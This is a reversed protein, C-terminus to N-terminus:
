SVYYLCLKKIVSSNEELVKNTSNFTSVLEIWMIVLVVKQSLWWISIVVFFTEPTFSTFLWYYLM